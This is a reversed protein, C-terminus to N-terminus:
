SQDLHKKCIYMMLYFRLEKSVSTPNNAKPPHEDKFCIITWKGTANISFYLDQWKVDDMLFVNWDFKIFIQSQSDILDKNLSSFSYLCHM